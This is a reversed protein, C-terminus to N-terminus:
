KWWLSTIFDTFKDCLYDGAFMALVIICALVLAVWGVLDTLFDM